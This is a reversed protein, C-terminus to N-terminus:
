GLSPPGRDAAREVAACYLDDTGISRYESFVQHADSVHAPAAPLAHVMAADCTPCDEHVAPGAAGVHETHESCHHFLSRPAVALVLLAVLCWANARTKWATMVAAFNHELSM